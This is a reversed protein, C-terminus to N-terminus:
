IEDYICLRLLRTTDSQIFGANDKSSTGSFYTPSGSFFISVHPYDLWGGLIEGMFLSYEIGTRRSGMVSDLVGTGSDPFNATGAVQARDPSLVVALM